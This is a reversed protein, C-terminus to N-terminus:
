NQEYYSGMLSADFDRPSAVLQFRYRALLQYFARRDIRSKRGRTVWSKATQGFVLLPVLFFILTWISSLIRRNM